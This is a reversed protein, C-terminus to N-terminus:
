LSKEFFKKLNKEATKLRDSVAQQSIGLLSAIEEQKKGKFYFLDIAERQMPKLMDLAEHLKETESKEKFLAEIEEDEVALWEGEIRLHSQHRAHKQNNNREERDLTKLKEAWEETVEIEVTETATEYKYVM